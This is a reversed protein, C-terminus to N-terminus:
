QPRVTQSTVALLPGGVRSKNLEVVISLVNTNALGNSGPTQDVKKGQNFSLVRGLDLFWTDSRVGAFAQLDGKSGSGGAQFQDNGRTKFTVTDSGSKLNFQCTADQTADFWGGTGFTCVISQERSGPKKTAPDVERIRFKYQVADSFQTGEGAYAHANMVLVLKNPDQPSTFSYMDSLDAAQDLATQPGDLHDSARSITPGALIVAIFAAAFPLGRKM